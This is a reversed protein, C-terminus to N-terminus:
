KKIKRRIRRKKQTKKGGSPEISALKLKVPSVNGLEKIMKSGQKLIENARIAQKENAVASDSGTIGEAEVYVMANALEVARQAFLIANRLKTMASMTAQIKHPGTNMLAARAADVAEAMRAEAGDVAIKVGAETREIIKNAEAGATEAERKAKEAEDKAALWSGMNLISTKDWIRATAQQKQQTNQQHQRATALKAMLEEKESKIVAFPTESPEEDKKRRTEDVARVAAQREKSSELNQALERGRARVEVKAKDGDTPIVMATAVREARATAVREARATAVREAPAALVNAWERAKPSDGVATAEEAMVAAVRAVQIDTLPNKSQSQEQLVSGAPRAPSASGLSALVSSVSSPSAAEPALAPSVAEPSVAEPSAAEPPPAQAEAGTTPPQQQGAPPEAKQSAASVAATRARRAAEVRAAAEGKEAASGVVAQVVAKPDTIWARATEAFEALRATMESGAEPKATEAEVARGAAESGSEVAEDEEMVGELEARQAARATRAARAARAARASVAVASTSGSGSEVARGAAREGRAKVAREAAAGVAGAAVAAVAAEVLKVAEPSAAAAAGTAGKAARAARAVAARAAARAAARVGVEVAAVIRAPLTLFSDLDEEVSTGDKKILYERKQIWKIIEPDSKVQVTLTIEDNDKANQILSVLNNNYITAPDTNGIKIKLLKDGESLGFLLFVNGSSLTSLTLDLTDIINDKITIDYELSSLKNFTIYFEKSFEGEVHLDNRHKDVITLKQTAIKMFTIKMNSMTYPSVNTGKLIVYFEVEDDTKVRDIQTNFSILNNNAIYKSKSAKTLINYVSPVLSPEVIYTKDKGTDDKDPLSGDKKLIKMDELTYCRKFAILKDDVKLGAKAFLGNPNLNVIFGARDLSVGFGNENLNDSLISSLFSVNEDEKKATKQITITYSDSFGDGAQIRLNKIHELYFEKYFESDPKPPISKKTVNYENILTLKYLLNNNHGEVNTSITKLALIIYMYKERNLLRHLESQEKYYKQKSGVSGKEIPKGNIINVANNDKSTNAIAKKVRANLVANAKRIVGANLGEFLEGELEQAMMRSLEAIVKNNSERKAIVDESQSGTSDKEISESQENMVKLMEGLTLAFSMSSKESQVGLIEQYLHENLPEEFTNYYAYYLIFTILKLAEKHNNVEEGGTPESETGEINNVKITLIGM